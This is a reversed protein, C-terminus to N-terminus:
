WTDILDPHKGYIHLASSTHIIYIIKLIKKFMSQEIHVMRIVMSTVRRNM